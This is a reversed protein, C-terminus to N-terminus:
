PACVVQSSYRSQSATCNQVIEARSLARNYGQMEGVFGHFNLTTNSFGSGAYLATDWNQFIDSVSNNLAASEAVKAGNIYIKAVRSDNITISVHTWVNAALATAGELTETVGNETIGFQMKGNEAKPSFYFLEDDDGSGGSGNYGAYFLTQTNESAGDWKVWGSLSVSTAGWDFYGFTAGGVGDFGLAYPNSREGNGQWGYHSCDGVGWFNMLNFSLLDLFTTTGCGSAQPGRGNRANAADFHFSQDQLVLDGVTKKRYRNSRTRMENQMDITNGATSFDATAYLKLPSLSGSWNHLGDGDAGVRLDTGLSFSNSFTCLSDGNLYMWANTSSFLVSFLSWENAAIAQNSKCTYNRGSSLYHARIQAESLVASYISMEDMKVDWNTGGAGTGIRLPVSPPILTKSSQTNQLIGNLYIKGTGTTHNWTAVVHEWEGVAVPASGGMLDLNGAEQNTWFWWYGFKHGLRFGNTLYVDAGAFTQFTATNVSNPNIWAEISFDGAWPNLAVDTTGSTGWPFFIGTNSDNELAGAVALTRTAPYTVTNGHGSADAGVTGSTEDFRWYALPSDALVLESYVDTSPPLMFEVKGSGDSAQHISFGSTSMLVTDPTTPSSPNIWASIMANTKGNFAGPVNMINASGDFNLQYPSNWAGTGAWPTQASFASFNANLTGVISPWDSLNNNANGASRPVALATWDSLGQGSYMPDFDAVSKSELLDEKVTVKFSEQVEDTQDSATITFKFDGRQTSTPWWTLVGNEFSSKGTYKADEFAVLSSLESCSTGTAAYNPDASSLGLSEYHCNFTLVDEDVDHATSTFIYPESAQQKISSNSGAYLLVHDSAVSLTPPTNVFPPVTQWSSTFVDSENGANDIVKMSIFYNPGVSLLLDTAQFSTPPTAGGALDTWELLDASGSTSGIAYQYKLVGSGGIVDEANAQFTVVPSQSSLDSTAAHTLTNEWLPASGDYFYRQSQFSKDQFDSSCVSKGKQRFVKVSYDVISDVSLAQASLMLVDSTVGTVSAVESGGCDLENYLAIVDSGLFESGDDLGILFSPAAINGPSTLSEAFSIGPAARRSNERELKLQAQGEATDRNFKVLDCASLGFLAAVIAATAYKGLKNESNREM